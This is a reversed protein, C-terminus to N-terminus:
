PVILSCSLWSITLPTFHIQFRRIAQSPLSLPELDTLFSWFSPLYDPGSGSCTGSSLLVSASPFAYVSRLCHVLLVPSRSPLNDQHLTMRSTSSSFATSALSSFSIVFLLLLLFFYPCAWSPAVTLLARHDLPTGQTIFCMSLTHLPRSEIALIVLLGFFHHLVM